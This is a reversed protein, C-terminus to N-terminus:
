ASWFNGVMDYEKYPILIIHTPNSLNISQNEFSLFTNWIKLEFNENSYFYLFCNM